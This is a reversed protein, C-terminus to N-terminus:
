DSKNGSYWLPFEWCESELASYYEMTHIYRMKNIWEEASPCKPQKKERIQTAREGKELELDGKIDCKIHIRISKKSVFEKELGVHGPTGHGVEVPMRCGRSLTSWRGRGVLEGKRESIGKVSVLLAGMAGPAPPAAISM